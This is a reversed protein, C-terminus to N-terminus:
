NFLKFSFNVGAEPGVMQVRQFNWVGNSTQTYKSYNYNVGVFPSFGRMRPNSYILRVHTEFGSQSDYVEGREDRGSDWKNFYYGQATAEVAVHPGIWRRAEMGIVPYPIGKDHFRVRTLFQSHRLKAPVGDNIRFDDYTFEIGIKARLDWGKLFQPLQWERNQYLPTLRREYFGGFTYWRTGDNDLIQNRPLYGGGYFFPITSFHDGYMSFDRFQFQAANVDDFWFSILAEPAQLQSTGLDPGFRFNSPISSDVRRRASSDDDLFQWTDSGEIDFQHPAPTLLDYEQRHTAGYDEAFSNLATLALAFMLLATIRLAKM